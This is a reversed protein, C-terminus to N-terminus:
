GKSFDISASGRLTDQDLTAIEVKVKAVGETIKAKKTDYKIGEFDFSSEWSVAVEGDVGKGELEGQHSLKGDLTTESFKLDCFTSLSTAFKLSGEEISFEAKYDCTLSSDTWEIKGELKGFAGLDCGSFDCKSEDCKCKDGGKDRALRALKRAEQAARAARSSVEADEQKAKLLNQGSTGLELLSAVADANASGSRFAMISEVAPGMESEALKTDVEANETQSCGTTFLAATVCFFSAGRRFKNMASQLRAGGGLGEPWAVGNPVCSRRWVVLRFGM